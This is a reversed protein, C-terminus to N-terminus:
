IKLIQTSPSELEGLRKVRMVMKKRKRTSPHMDDTIKVADLACLLSHATEPTKLSPLLDAEYECARMWKQFSESSLIEARSIRDRDALYTSVDHVAISHGCAMHTLEHELNGRQFIESEQEFGRPLELLFHPLADHSSTRDDFFIAPYGGHPSNVLEISGNVLGNASMIASIMLKLDGQTNKFTRPVHILHGEKSAGKMHALYQDTRQFLTSWQEADIQWEKHVALIAADKKQAIFQKVCQESSLGQAVFAQFEQSDADPKLMCFSNVPDQHPSFTYRFFWSSGTIFFTLPIAFVAWYWKHM